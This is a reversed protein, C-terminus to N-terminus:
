SVGCNVWDGIEVFEDDFGFVEGVEVAHDRTQAADGADAGDLAGLLDLASETGGRLPADFIARPSVRPLLCLFYGRGPPASGFRQTARGWHLAAM